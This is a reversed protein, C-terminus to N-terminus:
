KPFFCSQRTCCLKKKQVNRQRQKARSCRSVELFKRTVRKISCIDYTNRNGKKQKWQRQHSNEGRHGSANRMKESGTYFNWLKRVELSSPRRQKKDRLRAKERNDVDIYVNFNLRFFSDAKNHKNNIRELSGPPWASVRPLHKFHLM